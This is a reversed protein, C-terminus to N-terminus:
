LLVINVIYFKGSDLHDNDFIGDIPVQSSITAEVIDMANSEAPLNAVGGGTKFKEKRIFAM